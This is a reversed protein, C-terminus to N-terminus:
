LAKLNLISKENRDTEMISNQILIGTSSSLNFTKSHEPSSEPSHEEIPLPTVKNNQKTKYNQWQEWIMLAIPVFMLGATTFNFIMNLVLIAKGINIVTHDQNDFHISNFVVCSNVTLGILEFFIQQSLDFSSQFPKKGLLYVIMFFNNTWFIAAEIIPYEYMIPIIISFLLERITLILLFSQTGFSTDKYDQYLSHFGKHNKDFNEILEQNDQEAALKKVAQYHKILRAHLILGILMVNVLLFSIAFSLTSLDFQFQITRYELLAFLTIDGYSGYLTVLLYNQIMFRGKALLTELYPRHKSSSFKLIFGLLKLLYYVGVVILLIGLTDWFNLLFSSPVEYKEFMYPVQREPIKTTFDEPLEPTVSLSVFGPLWDKLAQQLELSYSINLFKINFFIRGGVSASLGIARGPAIFNTMQTAASNLLKSNQLLAKTSNSLTQVPLLPPVCEGNDYLLNNGCPSDCFLWISNEVTINRPLFPWVCSQHCTKNYYLFEDPLCPLECYSQSNRSVNLLPDNCKNVCTGNWYLYEGTM